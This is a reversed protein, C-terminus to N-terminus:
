EQWGWDELFQPQEIFPLDEEVDLEQRLEQIQQQIYNLETTTLIQDEMNVDESDVPLFFPNDLSDETAQQIRQALFHTPSEWFLLFAFLNIILSLSFIVTIYIPASVTTQRRKQWFSTKEKQEEPKM